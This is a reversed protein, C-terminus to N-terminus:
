DKSLDLLLQRPMLEQLLPAKEPRNLLARARLLCVADALLCMTWTFQLSNLFMASLGLQNKEYSQSAEIWPRVQTLLRQAVRSALPVRGFLIEHEAPSHSFQRPCSAQQWCWPCLPQSDTVGFWHLQDAAEYGLWDLRQGQVCVAQPGREFPAVLKMDARLRTLVAAGWQERIQRQVQLHIYSMDGLVLDPVWKLQRACYHLTPRLLEVENRNAPTVWSILPM